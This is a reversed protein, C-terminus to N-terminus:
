TRHSKGARRRPAAPGFAELCVGDPDNVYVLRSKGDVFDEVQKAGARLARRHWGAVDKAFFGFHDFESGKEFPEYFRNGKPYYNLEIWHRSGPFGMQVWEGGHGMRGRGLIRFGLARYFKISKPLDRVRIGSYLFRVPRPAM